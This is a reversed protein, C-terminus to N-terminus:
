RRRVQEKRPDRKAVRKTVVKYPQMWMERVTMGMSRGPRTMRRVFIATSEPKLCHDFVSLITYLRIAAMKGIVVGLPLNSSVSGSSAYALRSLFEFDSSM